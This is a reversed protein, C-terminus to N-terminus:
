DPVTPAVLALVGLAVAIDTAMPIGWGARGEGGVTTVVVYLLAPVAMGGLAAVVPLAAARPDRLEGRVLERKIELGVVFFFVTMLGDNVWHQLNETISLDGIGITLHTSWFDAYSIRAVNAWVLAAITAGLLVIGGLVEVYVFSSGMPPLYRGLPLRFARRTM